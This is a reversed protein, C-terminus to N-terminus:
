LRGERTLEIFCTAVFETGQETCIQDLENEYEDATINGCNLKAYLIEIRKMTEKM